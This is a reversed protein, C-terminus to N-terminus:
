WLSFIVGTSSGGESTMGYLIRGYQALTLSGYPVAGDAAGGTFSHLVKFVATKTDYLFVTGAGSSGGGQSMGFLIHGNKSLTLASQPYVGDTAGGTFSHLLEFAATKTDYQFITGSGVSVSSGGYGTIGYLTRGDPSLTLSGYGIAGDTAGGSFNHLVEFTAIETDYQFITGAGIGGGFYANSGGRTTM